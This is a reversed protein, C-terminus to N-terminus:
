LSPGGHSETQKRGLRRMLWSRVPRDYCYLAVSSVLLAVGCAVTCLLFASWNQLISRQMGAALALLPFHLVYLPYSLEGLWRTFGSASGNVALVLILPLLLFLSLADWWVSAPAALVGILALPLGPVSMRPGGHQLGRWRYLLAGLLFGYGVRPLGLLGTALDWGINAGGGLFLAIAFVAGCVLTTATLGAMGAAALCAAWGLNALGEFFLSWLPGNGPFLDGGRSADAGLFTPLLLANFAGSALIQAVSGVREPAVHHKILLVLTGLLAGLAALPYLRIARVVVFERLSLGTRLRAEYAHAIVFGSLMFFFDVALYGHPVLAPALRVQTLHYALVVLSAVGRLADLAELRQRVAYEPLSM